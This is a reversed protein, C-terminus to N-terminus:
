IPGFKDKGNKTPEWGTNQPNKKGYDAIDKMDEDSLKFDFVDMNEKLREIGSTTKPITIFGNQLSWRILIQAPTKNYKQSLKILYPDDLFRSKGLPSYGEIAINNTRCYNVIDENQWWPHLEIQNVAPVFGAQKLWELHEVGFNSVGISRIKGEKQLKVIEKYVEIVHGGQPAHLLYLDVYDTALQELSNKFSKQCGECGGETTFLKTTLFIEERKIGKKVAEGFQSENKYIEATDILPYGLKIADTIIQITKSSSEAQYLGLGFIPMSHGDNLTIRSKLTLSM